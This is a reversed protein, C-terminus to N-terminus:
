RGRGFWVVGAAIIAAICLAAAFYLALFLRSWRPATM